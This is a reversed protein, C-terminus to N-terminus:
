IRESVTKKYFATHVRPGLETTGLVHTGHRLNTGPGGSGRAERQRVGGTLFAVREWIGRSVRFFGDMQGHASFNAGTGCCNGWHSPSPLTLLM